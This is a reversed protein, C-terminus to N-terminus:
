KKLEALAEVLSEPGVEFYEEVEVTLSQILVDDSMADFEGASYDSPICGLLVWARGPIGVVMEPLFGRLAGEFRAQLYNMFNIVVLNKRLSPRGLLGEQRATIGTQVWRWFDSETLTRGREFTVSKPTVDKITYKKEFYTNGIPIEHLNLTVGLGSVKSFGFVPVFFPPRYDVDIVHFSFGQLPDTARLRAL